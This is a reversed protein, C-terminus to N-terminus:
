GVQKATVGLLADLLPRPKTPMKVVARHEALEADTEWAHHSEALLLVAPLERTIPEHAFRNFIELAPRGVAATSFLLIDAAHHDDFFRQLARHPDTAVLVRYGHKKFLQRFKDQMKGDSEVVMLRRPEGNENMGEQSALQPGREDHGESSRCRKLALKLDTLMDAPTQFRREPDFEIARNVVVALPPPVSPMVDRLPLINEYRGKSLRQTRDMTEALPPRGSLLQYFICGAFFIDSRTDDRRV